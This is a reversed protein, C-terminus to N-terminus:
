AHAAEKSSMTAKIASEATKMQDSQWPSYNWDRFQETLTFFLDRARAKDTIEFKHKLVGTVMEFLHQQRDVPCAADVEDFSNQQL